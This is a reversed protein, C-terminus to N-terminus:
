PQVLSKSNMYIDQQNDDSKSLSAIPVSEKENWKRSQHSVNVWCLSCILTISIPIGCIRSYKTM